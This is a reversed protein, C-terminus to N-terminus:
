RDQDSSDRSDPLGTLDSKALLDPPAHLTLADRLREPGALLHWAIRLPNAHADVLKRWRFSSPAVVKPCIEFMHVTTTHRGAWSTVPRTTLTEIEDWRLLADMDRTKIGESSIILAPEDRAFREVLPVLVAAQALMFFILLGWLGLIVDPEERFLEATFVVFVLALVASVVLALWPGHLLFGGRYHLPVPDPKTTEM